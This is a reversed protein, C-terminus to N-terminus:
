KALSYFSTSICDKELRNKDVCCVVETIVMIWCFDSYINACSRVAFTRFRLWIAIRQIYNNFCKTWIEQSKIIVLVRQYSDPRLIKLWFTLVSQSTKGERKAKRHCIKIIPASNLSLQKLKAPKIVTITIHAIRFTYYIM